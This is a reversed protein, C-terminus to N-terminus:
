YSHDRSVYVQVFREQGVPEIARPRVQRVAKFAATPELGTEILMLAVVLGTRGIGCRCNLIVRSCRNLRTFADSQVQRWGHPFTAGPGEQDLTLLHAWDM